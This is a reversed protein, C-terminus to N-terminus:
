GGPYPTVEVRDGFIGTIWLSDGVHLATTPLPMVPLDSRGGLSSVNMTGPNVAYVDYPVICPTPDELCTATIKGKNAPDLTMGTTLITNDTSWRLNDPMITMKDSQTVPSTGDIPIRVIRQSGPMAVFVAQGDTSTLIGNDGSGESHPLVKWGEGSRWIQVNGTIAGDMLKDVSATAPDGMNTVAIGGDPLPTVANAGVGAPVLVCGVWTLAADAKNVDFIEISERAGHSVTYLTPTDGDHVAIGHTSLKGPELPGPCGPYRAQDWNAPITEAVNVVQKTGSDIRYITDPQGSGALVWKTGALPIM